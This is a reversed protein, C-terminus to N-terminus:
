GMRRIFRPDDIGWNGMGPLRVAQASARSLAARRGGVDGQGRHQLPRGRRRRRLRRRPLVRVGLLPRAAADAPLAIVACALALLLLRMPPSPLTSNPPLARPTTM